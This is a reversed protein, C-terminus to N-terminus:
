TKNLSQNNWQIFKIVALCVAEIKTKGEDNIEISADGKGVGNIRIKYRRGMHYSGIIDFKYCKNEIKEVVPMLWEWSTHYKCYDFPPDRDEDTIILYGRENIVTTLGMFEAILKNGAQIDEKM